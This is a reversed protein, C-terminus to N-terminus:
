QDDSEPPLLMAGCVRRLVVTNAILDPVSQRYRTFPIAAL